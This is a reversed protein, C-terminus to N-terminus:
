KLWKVRTLFWWDVDGNFTHEKDTNIKDFLQYANDYQKNKMYALALYYEAEDHYLRNGTTVNQAIIDRFINIAEDYRSLEMYASAVVMKEKTISAVAKEHQAIVENYNKQQYQSVIPSTTAIGSREVNVEYTQYHQRFLRDSTNGTYWFLVIATITVLFMAAVAVFIRVLRRGTNNPMSVLKGTSETHKELFAQEVSKVQNIIGQQQILVAASQHLNLDGFFTEREDEDMSNVIEEESSEGFIISDLIEEPTEHRDNM